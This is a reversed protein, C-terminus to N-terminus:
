EEDLVAQIMAQIYGFEYAFAQSPRVGARQPRSRPRPGGYAPLGSRQPLEDVDWGYERKGSCVGPRIEIYDEFHM